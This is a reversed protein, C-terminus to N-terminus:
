KLYHRFDWQFNNGEIQWQMKLIQVNPKRPFYVDFVVSEGSYLTTPELRGKRVQNARMRLLNIQQKEPMDDFNQSSYGRGEYSVYRNSAGQYYFGDDECCSDDTDDEDASMALAVIGVILIVGIFIMVGNRTNRAKQIKEASVEYMQAAQLTTMPSLTDSPIWGDTERAATYMKWDKPDIYLSDLHSNQIEVQFALSEAISGLPELTISYDDTEDTVKPWLHGQKTQPDIYAISSQPISVSCSVCLLTVIVLQLSRKIASHNM